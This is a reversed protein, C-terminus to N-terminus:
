GKTSGAALGAILSKQLVFGVVVPPLAALVGVASILGYDTM